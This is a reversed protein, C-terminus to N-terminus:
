NHSPNGEIGVRATTEVVTLSLSHRSKVHMAKHSSPNRECSATLPVCPRVIQATYVEHQLCDCGKSNSVFTDEIMQDHSNNIIFVSSIVRRFYFNKYRLLEDSSLETNFEM